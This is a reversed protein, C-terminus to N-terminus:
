LDFGFAEGLPSCIESDLFTFDSLWNEGPDSRRDLADAVNARYKAVVPLFAAADDLWLLEQDLLAQAALCNNTRLELLHVRAAKMLSRAVVPHANGINFDQDRLLRM